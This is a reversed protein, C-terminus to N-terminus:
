TSKCRQVEMKCINKTSATTNTGAWVQDWEENLKFTAIRDSNPKGTTWTGDGNDKIVFQENQLSSMVHDIMGTPIEMAELFQRYNNESAFKFTGCIAFTMKILSTPKISQNLVFVNRKYSLYPWM